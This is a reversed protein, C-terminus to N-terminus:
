RNRMCAIEGGGGMGCVCVCLDNMNQLRIFVSDQVMVDCCVDFSVNQHSVNAVIVLLKLDALTMETTYLQIGLKVILILALM